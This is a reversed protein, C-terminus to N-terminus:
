KHMGLLNNWPECPISESPLERPIPGSEEPDWAEKEAIASSIQLESHAAEEGPGLLVPAM